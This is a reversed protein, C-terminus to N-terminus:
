HCKNVHRNKDGMQTFTQGCQSCTYPREGTHTRMHVKLKYHTIFRKACCTCKHAKDGTHYRQHMKLEVM